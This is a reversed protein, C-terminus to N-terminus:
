LKGIHYALGPKTSFVKNCFPCTRDEEPGCLKGIHYALGTKRSFYKNCFPCKKIKANLKAQNSSCDKRPRGRTRRTKSKNGTSKIKTPLSRHKRKSASGKKDSFYKTSPLSRRRPGRSANSSDLYEVSGSVSDGDSPIVSPTSIDSGAKDNQVERKKKVSSTVSISSCPVGFLDTRQRKWYEADNECGKCYCKKSCPTENAYCHCYFKLCKTRACGCGNLVHNMKTVPRPRDPAM